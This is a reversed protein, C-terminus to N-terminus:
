DSLGKVPKLADGFKPYNVKVGDDLDIKVSRTALPYLVDREYDNLERVIKRLSDLDKLAMTKDSKSTAASVSQNDLYAIQADLKHRFERLYDNLVVSVTDPRYRHMYVLANFSGNASSFLWYIPRKSYRKIHDDYFDRVFYSRIDRGIAEEIFRLNENFNEAGFTLTLFRNFREVIDDNFWVDDLIPIVNDKDAPFSPNPVRRLYDELTEGQNALILGGKELAYRGFMCGVAYSVFERMTDELLRAELKEESSKSDYRYHPNCTLTIEELPVDPTLEDQLKYADIFISNNEKELKQMELTMSQWHQCLKTYTENLLQTRYEDRLIPLTEFDWSIEYADWDDKTIQRMNEVIKGIANNRTIVEEVVPLNGINWAQFNLTPNIAGLFVRIVYSNLLGSLVLTKEYSPPFAASGGADFLAGYETIRTSFNGSSVASWNVNTKFIYEDNFAHAPVKGASNTTTRLMYGDNEWLVVYDWNGYWKRFVGGKQYPFWKNLSQTAAQRDKYGIGIKTRSVEYWLRLFRTNDGTIMGARPTALTHLPNGRVFAERIRDSVWYAIPSGPIKKLDAASARYFWGCNPNQIAELAKVPQLDAGYFEDLDIFSGKFEPKYQNFMTFGCVTVFANDFFAHFEPRVLNTLTTEDLIKDRLKEFSSLFMWNFPTMMGTFGGTFTMELIRVTFASFLDSKVDKYEDKLFDKLTSNQSRSGMYPPNAVVVHYNPSLYDAMELLKNMRTNTSHLFMDSFAGSEELRTRMEDANKMQPRILSGFHKADTFQRVTVWFDQTFLDKGVHAMYNNIEDPSFSINEMVCINPQVPNRFFRRYKERAKMTLAFAALVGAREDIEIGYLNHTLILTPIDSPVYGAEEYIAYLLDFAYVLMHGSGCAPDCIRLAEPSNIKLFDGEEQEPQIYYDMKEVLRSEPHNLMWLRGLSNEVLYRVIWNPTFLQTAAPIDDASVKDKSAFVADKKESIYFQYLWGIVEVNQCTEEDMARRTASLVSDESLLDLPLLLETYDDIKEFLYPMTQHTYNCVGVLLLRYAEGQADTSRLNGTLLDNVRKRINPTLLDEHIIGQKAEALIEPQTAGDAPSVTRVLSYGNVDMFRLACFRNFWTYAAREIVAAKSTELIAKKLETIAKANEAGAAGEMRLAAEVRAAVQELLRRRADQAFNKLKTTNM